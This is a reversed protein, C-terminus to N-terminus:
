SALRLPSAGRVEIGLAMLVAITEEVRATLPKAISEDLYHQAAARSVVDKLKVLCERASRLSAAAELRGRYDDSYTASAAAVHALASVGTDAVISAYFRPGRLGGKELDLAAESVEHALRFALHMLGAISRVDVDVLTVNSTVGVLMM